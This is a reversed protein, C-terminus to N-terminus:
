STKVPKGNPLLQPYYRTGPYRTGVKKTHSGDLNWVFQPSMFVSFVERGNRERRVRDRM